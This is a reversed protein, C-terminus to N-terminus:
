TVLFSDLGRVQLAVLKDDIQVEKSLFDAGITAKYHSSFKKHVYREMLSTKGVRFYFARFSTLTFFIPLPNLPTGVTASYSSKSCSGEDMSQRCRTRRFECISANGDKFL